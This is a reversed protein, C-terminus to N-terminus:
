NVRKTSKTITPKYDKVEEAEVETTEDDVFEPEPMAENDPRLAAVFDFKSIEGAVKENFIETVLENLVVSQQELSFYPMISNIIGVQMGVYELRARIPNVINASEKLEKVEKQLAEIEARQLNLIEKVNDLFNDM